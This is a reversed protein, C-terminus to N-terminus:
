VFIPYHECERVSGPKWRSFVNKPYSPHTHRCGRSWIHAKRRRLHYKLCQKVILSTLPTSKKRGNPIKQHIIKRFGGGAAPAGGRSGTSMACCGVCIIHWSATRISLCGKTHGARVRHWFRLFRIVFIVSRHCICSVDRTASPFIRTVAHGLGHSYSSIM